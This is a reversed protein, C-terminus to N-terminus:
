AMGNFFPCYLAINFDDPTKYGDKSLIDIVKFDGLYFFKDVGAVPEMLSAILNRIIHQPFDDMIIQGAKPFFNVQANDLGALLLWGTVNLLEGNIIDGNMPTILSVEVWDM